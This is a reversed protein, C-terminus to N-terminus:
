LPNIALNFPDFVGSFDCGFTRSPIQLQSQSQTQVVNNNNRRAVLIRRSGIDADQCEAQLDKSLENQIILDEIYADAEAQEALEQEHIDRLVQAFMRADIDDNGSDGGNTVSIESQPPLSFSKFNDLDDDSIDMPKVGFDDDM